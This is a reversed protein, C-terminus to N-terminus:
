SSVTFVSFRRRKGVRGYQSSSAFHLIVSNVLQSIIFHTGLKGLEPLTRAVLTSTCIGLKASNTRRNGHKNPTTLTTWQWFLSPAISM